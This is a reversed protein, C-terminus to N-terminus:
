QAGGKLASLKGKTINGCEDREVTVSQGTEALAGVPNWYGTIRVLQVLNYYSEGKINQGDIVSPRETTTNSM